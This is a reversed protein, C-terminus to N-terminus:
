FSFLFSESLFVNHYHVIVTGRGPAPKEHRTVLRFVARDPIWYHSLTNIKRWGSEMDNRGDEDRLIIGDEKPATRFESSM